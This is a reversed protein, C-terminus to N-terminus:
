ARELLFAHERRPRRTFADRSPAHFHPRRQSAVAVLSLGADHALSEMMDDAFLPQGRVVSDALILVVRGRRVLTRKMSRLSAVFDQSWQDIAEGPTLRELHRRAGIEGSEFRRAELGLWRMRAEHHVAYDYVGPYPPSSVVLDVANAPVSDLRRADDVAIRCPPADKPLKAAFEALRAVLETTKNRFLRITFGTALRRPRKGEATDGGQRSVKVLISSLVLGLVRRELESERKEIGDNLGDLELLVHVEFLERDVTGYRKTPGAKELRREDASDAVRNAADEIANREAATTGRTKLHALEVALPNLDAGYACRGLLRAEVLVTGSGMFPDLVVGDPTSFLGILRRATEPHLRAAYSHFGHVHARAEPDESPVALTSELARVMAPDGSRGDIRGGVHSLPRRDPRKEPEEPEPQAGARADNKRRDPRPESKKKGKGRAKPTHRTRKSDNM